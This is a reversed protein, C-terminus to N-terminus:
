DQGLFGGYVKPMAATDLKSLDIYTCTGVRWFLKPKVATVAHSMSERSVGALRALDQQTIPADIRVVLDREQAGLRMALWYLVFELRERIQSKELNQVRGIYNIYGKTVNDLLGALIDPQESVFVQAREVPLVYFLVDTFAEYFYLHYDPRAKLLWIIPFIHNRAFMTITREDGDDDIDYIKVMGSDIM